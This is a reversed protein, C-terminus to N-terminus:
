TKSPDDEASDDKGGLVPELGESLAAHVVAYTATPSTFMIFLIIMLLKVAALTFGAQIAMGILMLGAGLTDTMGSAHTRSYVDPLRLIGIAGALMFFSGGMLLIWSLGDLIWDM